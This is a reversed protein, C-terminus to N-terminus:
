HDLLPDAVAFDELQDPGHQAGAHQLAGRDPVADGAGWLAPHQSGWRLPYGPSLFPHDRVPISHRITVREPGVLVEKVVSRLVEPTGRPTATDPSDRLRALFGKLNEAVKLYTEQDIHAADLADLSAQLSAQKARLDPMRARLGGLTLLDEQVAQVLRSIAKTARTLDREVRTREATAPNTARLEALRRDLEAQVLAPDALLATVHAWLVEDLYDARVPENQCVRGGKYRYDDSGLCRYYYIKRKATPTSTRYYAYACCSCAAIGM